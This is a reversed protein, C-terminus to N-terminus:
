FTQESSRALERWDSANSSPKTSGTQIRSGEDTVMKSGAFSSCGSLLLAAITLCKQIEFFRNMVGEVHLCIYGGPRPTRIVQSICNDPTPSFQHSVNTSLMVWISVESEFGSFGHLRCKQSSLRGITSEPLGILRRRQAALFQLAAREGAVGFARELALGARAM